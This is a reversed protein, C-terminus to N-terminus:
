RSSRGVSERSEIVEELTERLLGFREDGLQERWKRQVDLAADAIVKELKRGGETLEILRAREDEPHPIRRLYGNTELHKVLENMSQRTMRAEEALASQTRGDLSRYRFLGIHAPRLDTYGADAVARSIHDRVDQWAIRLLGGIGPKGDEFGPAYRSM